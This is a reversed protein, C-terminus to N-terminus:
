VVPGYLDTSWLGFEWEQILQWKRLAVQQVTPWKKRWGYAVTITQFTAPVITPITFLLGAPVLETTSMSASSIIRGVNTLSVPVAWSNSVTQTHRIVPTSVIVSRIGAQMLKYVALANAANGDTFCAATVSAQPRDKASYPGSTDSGDPPNQIASRIIDMNKQTLTSTIATYVNSELLDSQAEGGTLEWLNIPAEVTGTAPNFDFRVECTATAFDETVTYMQGQGEFYGGLAKIEEKTGTYRYVAFQGDQTKGWTRPQEHPGPQGNITAM